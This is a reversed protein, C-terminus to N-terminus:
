QKMDHCIDKVKNPHCCIAVKSKAPDFLPTFYKEGVKKFDELTVKSVNEIIQRLFFVPM